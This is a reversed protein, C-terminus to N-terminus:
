KSSLDKRCDEFEEVHNFFVVSCWCESEPLRVKGHNTKVHSVYSERDSFWQLCEGCTWGSPKMRPKIDKESKKRGCGTFKQADTSKSQETSHVDPHLNTKEKEKVEKDVEATMNGM